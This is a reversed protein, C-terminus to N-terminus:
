NGKMILLLEAIISTNIELRDRKTYSIDMKGYQLYLIM